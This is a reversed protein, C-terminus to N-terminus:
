QSSPAGRNVHCDVGETMVLFGRLPQRPLRPPTPPPGAAGGSFFAPGMRAPGRLTAGAGDRRLVTGPTHAAAKLPPQHREPPAKPLLPKGRRRELPSWARCAPTRPSPPTRPCTNEKSNHPLAEGAGHNRPPSRLAGVRCDRTPPHRLVRGISVTTTVNVVGNGCSERGRLARGGAM